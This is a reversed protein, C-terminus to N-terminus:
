WIALPAFGRALLVAVALSNPNSRRVLIIEFVNQASSKSAVLIGSRTVDDAIAINSSVDGAINHQILSISIPM